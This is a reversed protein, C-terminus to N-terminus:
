VSVEKDRARRPDLAELLEQEEATLARTSPIETPVTLAFGTADVVDQVTVGPHLSRLRITQDPTEFDFVGLNSVVFRIEHFKTASPGAAIARQYGVGSVVDVHEVFSRTSHNPVWYSTPHNVTNGPAGRVGM